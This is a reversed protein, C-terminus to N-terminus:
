APEAETIPPGPQPVRAQETAVLSTGNGRELKLLKGCGCLTMTSNGPELAASHWRSCSPCQAAPYPPPENTM